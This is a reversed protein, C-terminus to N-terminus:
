NQPKSCMRNWILAIIESRSYIKIMFCTPLCSVMFDIALGTSFEFVMPSNILACYQYLLKPPFTLNRIIIRVLKPSKLVFIWLLHWNFLALINFDTLELILNVVLGYKWATPLAPRGHIDPSRSQFKEGQILFYNYNTIYNNM